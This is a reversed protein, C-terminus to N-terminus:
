NAAALEFHIPINFWMAEPQGARKGPVYRWKLVTQLATADLREYGSSTRVEAKSATGNIEIFARVVVRGQEGLRKSLPPYPPRPNNLYDADSSPLEIKPPAPPAAVAPAPAPEALTVPSPAPLAAPPPEIAGVPALTSPEPETVARPQPVPKPAPRPAQVKPPKPEPKPEPPPEPAPAVQPQPLEIMEALLQVPIVLEAARRLLGTQLAWLGLVHFGIVAIVITLRRDM